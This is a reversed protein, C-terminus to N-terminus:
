IDLDKKKKAQARLTHSMGFCVSVPLLSGCTVIFRKHTCIISRGSRNESWSIVLILFREAAIM